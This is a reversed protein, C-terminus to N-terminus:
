ATMMRQRVQSCQIIVARQADFRANANLIQGITKNRLRTELHRRRALTGGAGNDQEGVELM